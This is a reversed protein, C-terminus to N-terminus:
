KIPNLEVSFLAALQERFSHSPPARNGRRAPPQSFPERGGTASVTGHGIPGFIAEFCQLGQPPCTQGGALDCVGQAIDAAVSDDSLDMTQSQGTPGARSTYGARTWRSSRARGRMGWDNRHNLLFGELEFVSGEDGHMRDFAAHAAPWDAIRLCAGEVKTTAARLRARGVALGMALSGMLRVSLESARTIALHDVTM